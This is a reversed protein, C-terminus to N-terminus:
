GIGIFMTAPLLGEAEYVGEEYVEPGYVTDVGGHVPAVGQEELENLEQLEDKPNSM